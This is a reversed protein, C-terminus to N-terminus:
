GSRAYKLMVYPMITELYVETPRSTNRVKTQGAM